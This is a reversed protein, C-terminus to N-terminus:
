PYHILVGGSRRQEALGAIRRQKGAGTQQSFSTSTITRHSPILFKLQSRRVSRISSIRYSEAYAFPNTARRSSFSLEPSPGAVRLTRLTAATQKGAWVARVAQVARFCGLFGAVWKLGAALWRVSGL